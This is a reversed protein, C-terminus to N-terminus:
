YLSFVTTLEVRKITKVNDWNNGMSPLFAGLGLNFQIDSFPSWVFRAFLEGGLMKGDNGIGTIIYSSSVLDNRIFYTATFSAGLSELLRASYNLSLATHGTTKAQFVEGHYKTTVPVFPYLPLARGKSSTSSNTAIIFAKGSAGSAFYGNLFLVSEFRTPLSYRVGLEGFLSFNSGSKYTFFFTGVSGGASFMFNGVPVNANFVLYQTHLKDEKIVNTSDVQAILAASLHALEGVSPHEWDLAFFFRSPAFYTSWIKKMEIPEDYINQDYTTMLINANRKYQVGTYWGSLSFRGLASTHSVLAGDFLGDAIFGLPDSYSARGIKWGWAGFELFLEGRLFEPIYYFRNDYGLSLGVSAFFHGIDGLLFNARPVIGLRYEFINGDESFLGSVHQNLLLGPDFSHPRLRYRNGMTLRKGAFNLLADDEKEIYALVRSIYFLFREGSLGRFPDAKGQIIDKAQLEAFAYHSNKVINYMFGGELDFSRMILLAVADLRAIDDPTAHHPLWNRSAAYWFAEEEDNTNFEESILLTYRAAQAYTLEKIALLTEMEEAMSQAYLGFGSFLFVACIVAFLFRTKM